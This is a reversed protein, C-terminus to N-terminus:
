MAFAFLATERPIEASMTITIIKITPNPTYRLPVKLVLELTIDLLLIPELVVVVDELTETM